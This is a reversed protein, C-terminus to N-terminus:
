PGATHRRRASRLRELDSALDAAERPDGPLGLAVLADREHQWKRILVSGPGMPVPPNALRLLREIMRGIADWVHDAFRDRVDSWDNFEQVTHGSRSDSLQKLFQALTADRHTCSKVYILLERQPNQHALEYEMVAPASYVCGFLGVYISCDMAEVISRENIPMSEPAWDEAASAILLPLPRMIRVIDAREAAFEAQKSSILVKLHRTAIAM